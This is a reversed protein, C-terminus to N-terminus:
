LGSNIGDKAYQYPDFSGAPAGAPPGAPPHTAILGTHTYVVVLAQEGAADYAARDDAVGTPGIRPHPTKEPDRVWLCVVGGPTYMVTGNPSFLVDVYGQTAGTMVPSVGISTTVGSLVASPFPDPPVPPSVVMRTDIITGGTLQLTPEGILPRPAPQFGFEYVVRSATQPSSGFPGSNNAGLDPYSGNALILQRSPQPSTGPPVIVQDAKIGIIRCVRQLEPLQLYDGVMVRQDFESLDAAARSPDTTFHVQRYQSNNHLINTTPEHWYVFAIRPGKPGTPGTPNPTPDGPNPNPAWAEPAEIYQAETAAFYTQDGTPNLAPDRVPNLLLRVGRPLGDRMARNKSILLWGSVRDAASVVRQSGFVGSQSVAVALGALVIILAIVVLLEVLTFAPRRLSARRTM